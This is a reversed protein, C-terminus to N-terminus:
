SAIRYTQSDEAFLADGAPIVLGERIVYVASSTGFPKGDPSTFYIAGDGKATAEESASVQRVLVKGQELRRLSRLVYHPHKKEASAM